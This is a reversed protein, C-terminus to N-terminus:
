LLGILLDDAAGDTWLVEQQFKKITAESVAPRDVVALGRLEARRITYLPADARWESFSGEEIRMEASFGRLLGARVCELCRTSESVDALKLLVDMRDISDDLTIGSDVAGVRAIPRGRDHQVNCILDEGVSLSGAPVRLRLWGYPIDVDYRMLTGSLHRSGQADASSAKLRSAPQYLNIDFM